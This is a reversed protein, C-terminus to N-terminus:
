IADSGFLYVAMEKILKNKYKRVTKEGLNEGYGQQGALKEAIEEYTYVEEVIRNGERSIKRRLYRMEIIEYGKKERIKDLAKEIREVDKRSREYSAKRSEMLLNEDADGHSNKSYRVFSRSKGHQAIEMYEEEDAVHEKLPRYSYLLKETNRFSEDSIAKQREAWSASSVSRLAEAVTVAIIEKIENSISM